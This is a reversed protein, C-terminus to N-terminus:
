QRPRPSQLPETRSFEQWRRELEEAAPVGAHAYLGYRLALPKGPEVTREADYTLSTGMWGDDRVHFFTPHNPNSPHDM